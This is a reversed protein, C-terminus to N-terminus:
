LSSRQIRPATYELGEEGSVHSTEKYGGVARIGRNKGMVMSVGRDPGILTSRPYCLGVIQKM